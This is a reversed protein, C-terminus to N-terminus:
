YFSGGFGYPGSSSDGDLDFMVLKIEQKEPCQILM